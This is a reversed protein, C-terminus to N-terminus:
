HEGSPPSAAGTETQEIFQAVVTPGDFLVLVREQKMWATVRGLVDLFQRELAMKEPPGAMKTTILPGFSLARQDIQYEGALRNVGASGAVRRVGDTVSLRLAPHRPDGTLEVPKGELFYLVWTVDEVGYASRNPAAEGSVTTETHRCATLGTLGALLIVAALLKM